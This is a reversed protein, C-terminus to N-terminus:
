IRKSLLAAIPLGSEVLVSAAALAAPPLLLSPKLWRKVFLLLLLLPLQRAQTCCCSPPPLLLRDSCVCSSLLTAQLGCAGAAAAGRPIRLKLLLKLLEGANASAM